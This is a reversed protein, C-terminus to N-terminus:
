NAKHELSNKKACQVNQEDQVFNSGVKQQSDHTKQPARQKRKNVSETINKWVCKVHLKGTM